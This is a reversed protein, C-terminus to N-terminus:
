WRARWGRTDIHIFPGHVRNAPYLGAGGVLEPYREEIREVAEVVREYNVTEALTDRRHIKAAHPM